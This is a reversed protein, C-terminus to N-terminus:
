NNIQKILELVRPKVNYNIDDISQPREDYEFVPNKPNILNDVALKPKNSVSNYLEIVKKRHMKSLYNRHKETFNGNKVLEDVMQKVTIQKKLTGM